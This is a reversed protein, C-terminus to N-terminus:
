CAHTLAFHAVFVNPIDETNCSRKLLIGSPTQIMFAAVGLLFWVLLGRTLGQTLSKAVLSVILLCYGATMVGRPEIWLLIRPLMLADSMSGIGTVAFFLVVITDSLGLARRVCAVTNVFIIATAAANGFYLVVRWASKADQSM